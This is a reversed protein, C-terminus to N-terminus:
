FGISVGFLIQRPTPWAGSDIGFNQAATRGSSDPKVEPDLGTYKTLTFLNSVQAYVRLSSLTPENFLKGLNYGVMLNRLRLYSADELFATSPTQSPTDNGEAIPLKAKSNDGDLYPSGWSYYLRNHSRGGNFQVYDIFRKVYNVMKNGYSGYFQASLDFGKYELSLNLGGTFKPHPSGIYTRDDANIIGDENLDRYKFHGPKNYNGNAGFAVAHNDAEEQTQFIGDVIYGYFEPFATGAQARTYYQERFGSGELFENENGSLAVIENKYHSINANISYTLENGLATGSYSIDLDIGRNKMDGVNVYPATATGLVHPIAKPFLMDTTRRQWYDFVINLGEFLTADFGVGTTRTTEWRVDMNGFRSQRFGTTGQSGNSGDLPYFSNDLNFDYQSFSNYNNEVRDNGATGYGARLKLSTLWDRTPEMFEENSIRWGLSAAPFTGYKNNGGFRSSGDRRVVAELLYKNDYSYNIRGFVSFMSWESISSANTQGQIGTSLEIYAPDKLTYDYRGARTETYYNAIAETGALVTFNHDGITKTYDITNTWNWQKTFQENRSMNDYTGREAYAKELYNIDKYDYSRHMFGFVTKINLGEIPTLNAFVSGNVHMRKRNDYQNNDLLFLVNQANGTEGGVRSGAYNGMIDYVPVIPQMRYAWSIASAENNNSDSGKRESYTIGLNEGVRLWKTIDSTINTQLNYRDYSTYKLVGEQKLYGLQFSYTTTESGGNVNMSFDHFQATRSAEKLWDTGERNAKTILYTDDGDEGVMMNDYLSEDVNVGRNPFIYEPIDPTAGDGYLPHSYNGEVGPQGVIRGDNKAQLWLLEGYERTNLLDYSNTNNVIGSRMNISIQAKQNKKGAKTTVLIVGNAARTGYIAAAAADKLVTITEINNPNVTAGPVGDVVWLPSSDNITGLGRIRITPEGGPTNSQMTTVGPVNKLAEGVDVVALKQIDDASVKSISGTVEGARRTGYGVVVVEELAQVDESLTINVQQRNNVAMEVTTYGIYSFVLTASSANPVSLTYAGDLDTINGVTTGKVLVSVGILPEGARDTVIGRVTTNQAFATFSCLMLGLCFTWLFKLKRNMFM